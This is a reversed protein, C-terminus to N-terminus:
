RVARVFYSGYYFFYNGCGGSDFYVVWAGSAIFGPISDSTWIWMQKKDFTCDIYLEDKSKESELLSMAEELTPLRWDSYGAFRQRNLADLYVSTKRYSMIDSGSQQWMLGSADDNVVKGGHQLKFLNSFGSASPNRMSDFFGKENMMIVAEDETFNEMAQSRLIRTATKDVGSDEAEVREEPEIIADRNSKDEQRDSISLVTKYLDHLVANQDAKTMGELPKDPSNVAQYLSLSKNEMFSCHGVIVPLIVTTDKKASALLPPLEDNIIFDSALFDASILLVAVTAEKLAKSIENKWDLGAHIKEDSWLDITGERELPKLHVKLRDLWEKDVHSYSIFVNKRQAQSM